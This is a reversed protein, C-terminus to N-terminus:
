YKKKKEDTIEKESCSITRVQNQVARNKGLNFFLKSSKEGHEYWDCRSRIIAGNIKGQYLKDLEEEYHIYEPDDRYRIKSGLIKLKM